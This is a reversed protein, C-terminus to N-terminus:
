VLTSVKHVNRRQGDRQLLELLFMMVFSTAAVYLYMDLMGTVTNSNLSFLSVLLNFMVHMRLDNNVEHEVVAISRFDFLRDLLKSLSM